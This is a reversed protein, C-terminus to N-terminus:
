NECIVDDFKSMKKYANQITNNWGNGMWVLQYIQDFIWKLVGFDLSNHFKYHFLCFQYNHFNFYFLVLGSFNM